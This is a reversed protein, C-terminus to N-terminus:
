ALVEAGQELLFRLTCLQGSAAAAHLPSYQQLIFVNYLQILEPTKYIEYTSCNM